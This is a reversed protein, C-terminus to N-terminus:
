FKESKGYPDMPSKITLVSTNEKLCINILYNLKELFIM